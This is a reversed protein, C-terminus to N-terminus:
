EHELGTTESVFEAEEIALDISKELDKPADRRLFRLVDLAERGGIRGVAEIAVHRVEDDEDDVLRSLPDIAASDGFHGAARAAECRIDPDENKLDALITPLWRQDLNRGMAVLAGAREQEFDSRAAEAIAATVREDASMFAASELARRRVMWNAGDNMLSLLASRTKEVQDPTLEDLEVLYSFHGLAGAVTEQVAPDDDTAAIECLESLFSPTEDEWLGRIALARTEADADHLVARLFRSFDLKLDEDGQRIMERIVDRRTQVPLREWTSTFSTVQARTPDSLDAIRGSDVRGATAAENLIEEVNAPPTPTQDQDTTSSM